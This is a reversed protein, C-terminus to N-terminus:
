SSAILITLEFGFREGGATALHGTYYWWEIGVPHPAEDRPWVIDTDIPPCSTDGGCAVTLPLALWLSLRFRRIM